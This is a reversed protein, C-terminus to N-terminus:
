PAADPPAVFVVVTSPILEVWGSSQLLPVRSTTYGAATLVVAVVAIRKRRRTRFLRRESPAEHGCEPCQRNPTGSLDYWCKPCRRRGRSRDWFLAWFLLLLGAAALTYGLLHYLWDLHGTPPGM